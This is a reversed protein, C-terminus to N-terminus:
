QDDLRSAPMASGRDTEAINDLESGLGGLGAERMLQDILPAQARYDLTAQLVDRALGGPPQTGADRNAPGSGPNTLGDVKAIRV